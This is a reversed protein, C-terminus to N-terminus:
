CSVLEKAHKWREKALVIKEFEDDTLRQYLDWDGSEKLEHVKNKIDQVRLAFHRAMDGVGEVHLYKVLYVLDPLSWEYRAARTSEWQHEEIGIQLFRDFDKDMLDYDDIDNGKMQAKRQGPPITAAEEYTWNSKVIRNRFTHPSIGNKIATEQWLKIDESGKRLPHTIAKKMPWGNSLRYRLVRKSIGNSEAIEFQKKTISHKM